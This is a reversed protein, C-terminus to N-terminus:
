NDIDPEYCIEMRGKLAKRVAKALESAIMSKMIM